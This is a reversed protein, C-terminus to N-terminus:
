SQQSPCCRNLVANVAESKLVGHPNLSGPPLGLAWSMLARLAAQLQPRPVAGTAGGNLVSFCFAEAESEPSAGACRAQPRHMVSLKPRLQRMLKMTKM